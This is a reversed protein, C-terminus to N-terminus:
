VSIEVGGVVVAGCVRRYQVGMDSQSRLGCEFQVFNVNELRGGLSISSMKTELTLFFVWRM